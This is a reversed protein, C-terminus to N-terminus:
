RSKSSTRRRLEDLWELAVIVQYPTSPREGAKIMVFGQGDLTVDYNRPEDSRGTEEYKGAFLLRPVGATFEPQLTITVVMVKDGHRYFLEPVKRAWVPSVGGETSIQRKSGPGPFPQIYVENRGSENSVYALWRGDPSFEPGYENFPTRLFLRPRREGELTLVWIDNGSSSDNGDGFQTFALTKGDPSWCGTFQPDM